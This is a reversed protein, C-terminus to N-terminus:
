ESVTMTGAYIENENVCTRGGCATWDAGYFTFAAKYANGTAPNIVPNGNQDIAPLTDTIEYCTVKGGCKLGITNPVSVGNTRAWSSSGNDFNLGAYPGSHFLMWSYNYGDYIWVSATNGNQDILPISVFSYAANSYAGYSTSGYTYTTTQASAMVAAFVLATIAAIRAFQKM